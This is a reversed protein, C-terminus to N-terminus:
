KAPPHDNSAQKEPETSKSDKPTSKKEGQANKAQAARQKEQSKRRLEQQHKRLRSWRQSDLHPGLWQAFAADPAMLILAVFASIILRFM